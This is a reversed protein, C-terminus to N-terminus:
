GSARCHAPAPSGNGVDPFSDRQRRSDIDAVVERPHQPDPAGRFRSWEPDRIAGKKLQFHSVEGAPFILLMGGSRLHLLAQRVGRSNSPGGSFADIFICKEAIEPIAGLLQNTLIRVDPRIGTLLDYLMVGDLIGFPHNSVAVVAGTVPIKALDAPSVNVQVDLEGLLDRVFHSGRTRQYLEELQDIRLFRNMAGALPGPLRHTPFTEFAVERYPLALEKVPHHCVPFIYTEGATDVGPLRAM